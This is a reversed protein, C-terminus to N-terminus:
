RPLAWLWRLRNHATPRSVLARGPRRGAPSADIRIDDRVARMAAAFAPATSGPWRSEAQTSGGLM